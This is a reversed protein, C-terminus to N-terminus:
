YKTNVECATIRNKQLLMSTQERLWLATFEKLYFVPVIDHKVGICPYICQEILTIATGQLIADKKGENSKEVDYVGVKNNLKKSYKKSLLNRYCFPRRWKTKIKIQWWATSEYIITSGQWYPINQSNAITRPKSMVYSPFIHFLNAEFFSKTNTSPDPNNKYFEVTKSRQYHINNCSKRNCM